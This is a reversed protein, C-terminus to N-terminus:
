AGSGAERVQPCDCPETALQWPPDEDPRAHRWVEKKCYDCLGDYHMTGDGAPWFSPSIGRLSNPIVARHKCGTKWSKRGFAM